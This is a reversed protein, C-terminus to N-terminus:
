NKSNIAQALEKGPTFKLRKKSPIPITEGTNFNRGNRPSTEQLKFTGFGKLIINENNAVATQIEYLISDLILKTDTKTIKTKESVRNILEVSGITKAHKM